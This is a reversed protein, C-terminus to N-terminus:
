IRWQRGGGRELRGAPDALVERLDEGVVLGHDVAKGQAAEAIGGAGFFERLLDKEGEEFVVGGDGRGIMKAVPEAANGGTAANIVRTALAMALGVTQFFHAFWGALVAGVLSEEVALDVGEDITQRRLGADDHQQAVLVIEIRGFNGFDQFDREAGHFATEGAAELGKAEEHLPLGM